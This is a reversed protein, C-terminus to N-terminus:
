KQYAARVITSVVKMDANDKLHALAKMAAGMNPAEKVVKDVEAQIEAETLQKPLYAMLVEMEKDQDTTDRGATTLYTLQEKLAKINRKVCTLVMDDSAVDNLALKGQRVLELREKEISAILMRITTVKVKNKEKMAQVMDKKLTTIMTNEGKDTIIHFEKLWRIITPRTVGCIVAMQNPNYREYLTAMTQKNRHVRKVM